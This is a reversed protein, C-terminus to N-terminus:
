AHSWQSRQKNKQRETETDRQSREKRSTHRKTERRKGTETEKDRHTEAEAYRETKRQREMERRRDRDSEADTERVYESAQTTHQASEPRVTQSQQDESPPDSAMRIMLQLSRISRLYSQTGPYTIVGLLVSSLAACHSM